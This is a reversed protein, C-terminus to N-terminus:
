REAEYGHARGDIKSRSPPFRAHRPRYRFDLIAEDAVRIEPRDNRALISEISCQLREQLTKPSPDQPRSQIELGARDGEFGTFRRFAGSFRLSM